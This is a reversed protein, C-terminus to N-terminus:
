EVQARPVAVGDVVVYRPSGWVVVQQPDDRDYSISAPEGDALGTRTVDNMYQRAVAVVAVGAEDTFRLRLELEAAGGDRTQGTPRLSEITATARVGRTAIAKALEREPDHSRRFLGM